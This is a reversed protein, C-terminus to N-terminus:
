NASSTGCNQFIINVQLQINRLETYKDKTGLNLSLQRLAPRGLKPGASVAKSRPGAGTEAGAVAMEQVAAKTTEIATQTIAQTVAQVGAM